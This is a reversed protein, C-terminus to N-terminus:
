KRVMEMRPQCEQTGIIEYKVRYNTTTCGEHKCFGDKRRQKRQKKSERTKTATITTNNSAIIIM